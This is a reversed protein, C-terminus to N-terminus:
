TNDNYIINDYDIVIVNFVLIQYTCDVKWSQDIYYESTKLVKLKDCNKTESITTTELLKLTFDM